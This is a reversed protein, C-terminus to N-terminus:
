RVRRRVALGGLLGLGALMLAWEGPEPVPTILLWGEPSFRVDFTDLGGSAGASGVLQGDEFQQVYLAVQRIQSLNVVGPSIAPSTPAGLMTSSGLIEIVYEFGTERVDDCFASGPSCGPGRVFTSGASFGSFSLADYVGDPIQPVGTGGISLDNVTSVTLGALLTLSLGEARPAALGGAQPLFWDRVTGGSEQEEKFQQDAAPFAYSLTWGLPQGVWGALTNGAPPPELTDINLFSAQYTTQTQVVFTQAPQAAVGGVALLASALVGSSVASFLRFSRFRSSM